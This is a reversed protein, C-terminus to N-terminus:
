QKSGGASKRMIKAVINDFMQLGAGYDSHTNQRALQAWNPHNYFSLFAEPHPMLGFVQGTTDCLGACALAAGNPNAPYLDTADGQADCYTLVNLGKESIAQRINEDKIILKGEGHRVPLDILDIGHLFPTPANKPSSCQVWRDEFQASDNHFLSVEQAYNGGINPLLGLRTLMQFGNCIGVVYKGAAIFDKLEDLLTRGNPLTRFRIKNAMVRGSAIDDGFAFGGAFNIIDYQAIDRGQLFIENLHLIDAQAGALQYAAALEEECNIGFGTLVLARVTPILENKRLNDLMRRRLDGSSITLKKDTITQYIAEYRRTTEAVVDAPLYLPIEGDADKNALLWLRVFEKDIQEATTPNKAYDEASWFRSSDPTHMEDILLLSGDPLLGFEYKTDVLIIGREALYQTGFDFLALTKAKIQAYLEAAIIQGVIETETIETDDDDKTTPTLVPTDFRQNQVMGDAVTVGSFVRKGKQYDRWMSGALYGRVVMEIRIPEAQRVLAINEDIQAILHNDIIYRTQEFWFNAIGNLAAGKNPIPTKIKKNFASIRDSVIILRREADIQVSDRVKGSYIREAFFPYDFVQLCSMM